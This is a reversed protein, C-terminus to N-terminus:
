HNSKADRFLHSNKKIFQKQQAKDMLCFNQCIGDNTKRCISCGLQPTTTSKNM